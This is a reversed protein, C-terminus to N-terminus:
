AVPILTLVQFLWESVLLATTSVFPFVDPVFSSSFFPCRVAPVARVASLPLLVVPCCPTYLVVAPIPRCTLLVLLVSPCCGVFPVAPIGTVAAQEQRTDTKDQRIATSHTMAVGM